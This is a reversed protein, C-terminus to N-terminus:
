GQGCGPMVGIGSSYDQRRQVSQTEIRRYAKLYLKNAPESVVSKNYNRIAGIENCPRTEDYANNICYEIDTLRLSVFHLNCYKCSKIQMYNEVIEM